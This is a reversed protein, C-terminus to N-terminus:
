EEDLIYLNESKNSSFIIPDDRNEDDLTIDDFKKEAYFPTYIEIVNDSGLISIKEISISFKNIDFNEDLKMKMEARDHYIMMSIGIFDREKLLEDNKKTPRESQIKKIEKKYLAKFYKQFGEVEEGDLELSFYYGIDFSQDDAYCGFIWDRYIMEEYIKDWFKNSSVGNKMYSNYDRKSINTYYQRRFPACFILEKEM